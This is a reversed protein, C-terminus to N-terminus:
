AELRKGERLARMEAAREAIEQQTPDTPGPKDTARYSQPNARPPVVVSQGDLRVGVVRSIRRTSVGLKCAIIAHTQGASWLKLIRRDVDDEPSPGLDSGCVMRALYNALTTFTM